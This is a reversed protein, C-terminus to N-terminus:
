GTPDVLLSRIREALEPPVDDCGCASRLLEKLRQQFESHGMCPACLELHRHIEVRLSAEVEGDLYLEIQELVTQCDIPSL